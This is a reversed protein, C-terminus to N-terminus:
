RATMRSSSGRDIRPAMMRIALPAISFKEAKWVTVVSDPACWVITPPGTAECSTMLSMPLLPPPKKLALEACGNSLGFGNVLQNSIKRSSSIGNEVGRANPLITLSLRCPKASTETMAVRQNVATAPILKKSFWCEPIAGVSARPAMSPLFTANPMGPDESKAADVVKVDVPATFENWSENVGNPPPMASNSMARPSIAGPPIPAPMYPRSTSAITVTNTAPSITPRVGSYRPLLIRGTSIFYAASYKRVSGTTMRLADPSDSPRLIPVDRIKFGPGCPRVSIMYANVEIALLLPEANAPRPVFVVQYLVTPPMTISSPLNAGSINARPRAPDRARCCCTGALAPVMSVCLGSNTPISTPTM